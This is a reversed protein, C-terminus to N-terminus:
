RIQIKPMEAHEGWFIGLLKLREKFLDFDVPKIMYASAGLEYARKIDDQEASTSMVIVPLLRLGGPSEARLWKLFDFGNVGPMKLDLLIVDPLPHGQQGAYKGEGKLYQITDRGDGVHLFGLHSPASRFAREVLLVDTPNDEVLLFTTTKTM